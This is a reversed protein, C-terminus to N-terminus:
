LRACSNPLLKRSSDTNGAPELIRGSRGQVPSIALNHAHKKGRAAGGDSDTVEAFHQSRGSAADASLHDTKAIALDKRHREFLDVANLQMVAIM